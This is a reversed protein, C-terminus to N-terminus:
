HDLIPPVVCVPWHFANSAPHNCDERYYGMMLSFSGPTVIRVISTKNRVQVAQRDDAVSDGHTLDVDILAPGLTPSGHLDAGHCSSCHEDFTAIFPDVAGGNRLYMFVAFALLAIVSLVILTKKLAPM